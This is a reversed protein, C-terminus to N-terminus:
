YVAGAAQLMRVVVDRRGRSAMSLPSRWEGESGPRSTKTVWVRLNVNAGRLILLEVVAAQGAGSAQILATEDDEVIDDIRAGRDLLLEVIERHGERAAMILPNGDGQVPLNPDAGRDLLLRVANMHGSRAAGILPTGDGQIAANINAGADLLATVEEVDGQEAAEYLARDRASFPGRAFLQPGIRRPQNNGPRVIGGPIALWPFLPADKAASAPGSARASGSANVGVARIPAITLVVVVVAALAAISAALGARGRRQTADLIASVRTSLDSRKAMALAPQAAAHSLREALLVLQEAYGTREAEDRAARTLVADDCAREAELRLHRWAMWVLPNYWYLACAVRAGLQVIWDLRRVHELEHVLARRIDREDWQRADSPLLIAPHRLGCTLPAAVAEHVLVDVSRRVNADAALTRVLDRGHLWPVGGRRLRALQWMATSLSALILVVGAIWITRLLTSLTLYSSWPRSRAADDFRLPGRHLAGSREAELVTAIEYAVRDRDIASSSSPTDLGALPIEIAIARLLLPSAIPVALLGGFTAALLLHRVSARARRTLRVAALGLLAVLAAKIALSLEASRAITVITDSVLAMM